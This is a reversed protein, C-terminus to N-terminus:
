AGFRRVEIDRHAPSIDDRRIMKIDMIRNKYYKQIEPINSSWEIFLIGNEAAYEEFGIDILEEYSTIRYLDFHYFPMKGGYYENVITFTPSTIYDSIGLAKAAGRTFHTKGAGLDGNLCVIDGEKLLQGFKGGLSETEQESNTQFRLLLEM